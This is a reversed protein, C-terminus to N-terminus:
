RKVAPFRRALAQSFPGDVVRNWFPTDQIVDGAGMGANVNVVVNIGGGGGGWGIPEPGNEAMIGSTRGSQADVLYHPSMVMGGDKFGHLTGGTVPSVVPIGYYNGPLLNQIGQNSGGVGGGGGGGGGAGAMIQTYTLGKETVGGAVGANRM